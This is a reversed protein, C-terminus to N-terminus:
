YSIRIDTLACQDGTLSLYVSDYGQPITTTSKLHIGANETEMTIRNRRRGIKLECEYGKLNDKKWGDWGNFTEGRQAHVENIALDNNTANEGDLRICGHEHYNKGGPMGDDSSFLLMFPCHWILHATPLSKTRFRLIMGDVVEVPQTYAKRYGEIQLNPIDGEIKNIFSVEDAIRPIDGELVEGCNEEIEVNMISCHEGTFAVYCFRISDALAAIVDVKYTDTVISLKVHDKFKAMEMDVHVVSKKELPVGAAVPTVDVKMNRAATSIYNGDLWIEGYELYKLLRIGSDDTHVCGDHADFLIIAPISKKEDFGMESQYDFHIRTINETVQIGETIVEKYENFHMQKVEVINNDNRTDTLFEKERMMYETDHDIMDIMIEAYGPDFQAGEEKVIEERVTSQPLPDRHHRRSTMSDYADAVAIIRAIKPINEGLLGEPYGKGDFREHHYKAGLSLFPFDNINSLIEGGIITHKKYEDYEESSLESDKQVITDAVGIKGVDHLLAAFFVEDCDKEDMGSLRAIERSYDAVRVSHGQGYNDGQDIATALAIATQEFLKKMSDHEDKLNEYRLRNALNAKENMEVLALTYVAVVMTVAAMDVLSVGYAFFQIMSAVLCVSVFLFISMAIRGRIKKRYYVLISMQIILILYPFIYSIFYLDSRQYNNNEDFTYYLGTFQSILVLLMALVALADAINLALPVKKIGGENKLVDQLYLSITFLVFVTMLFVLCNSVRVAIYGERGPIGHFMYAVRDAELWIVAGLQMMFMIIKRRKSMITNVATFVAIILCISVLGLMIDVQHIRLFEFM